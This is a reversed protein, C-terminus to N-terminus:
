IYRRVLNRGYQIFYITAGCFYSQNKSSKPGYLPDLSEETEVSPGLEAAFQFGGAPVLSALLPRKLGNNNGKFERKERKPAERPASKGFDAYKM